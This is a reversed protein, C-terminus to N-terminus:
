GLERYLFTVAQARTVPADPSFAREGTGNTIGKSVAWTVASVYYADAAVDDFSGGSVAPSGAARWQFTVAQARTVPAGPSFTTDTTGVTIGKSVAWLVADYYYDGASVDTFPNEGTAKPAGWARWLFTVMQARTVTVNPSFTSEGTGNTIGNEVAWLVADYYYDGAYIDAFPNTSLAETFVASVEVNSAPMTFTYQTASIKTLAVARGGANTVSLRGLEYGTDPTVTVTVTAGAAARTTSVRVTGHAVSPVTVSYTAEAGGINGTDDGTPNKSWLATFTTDATIQVTDGAKHTVAGDNWGRFTYGDRSLAAPLEYAGSASDSKVVKGRDVFTVVYSGAAAVATVDASITGQNQLRANVLYIVNNDKGDTVNNLLEISSTSDVSVSGNKKIEVPHKYSEGDTSWQSTKPLDAGCGEVTIESHNVLSIERATVGLLGTGSVSVASNDVTLSDCSLGHSACGTIQIKSNNSLKWSGGNSFNGGIDAATITSNNLEFVGPSEAGHSDDSSITANSLNKLELEVNNMTLSAGHYVDIGYTATADEAKQIVLKIDSLTLSAPHYVTFCKGSAPVSASIVLTDESVGASQISVDGKIWYSSDLAADKLLYVSGGGEKVAELAAALTGAAATGSNPIYIAEDDSSYEVCQFTSLHSTTWTLTGNELSAEMLEHEGEDVCFVLVGAKGQTLTYPVSVTVTGNGDGGAPLLNTSGAKVTVKYASGDKELLIVVDNAAESVADLAGADLTVSGVDTELTLSVANKLSAATSQPVTLVASTTSSDTTTLDVTLAGGDNGTENGTGSGDPKTIETSAGTYVGELTASVSNGVTVAGTVAMGGEPKVEVIWKGDVEKATYGTALYNTPNASFTGGSISLSAPSTIMFTGTYDGGKLEVGGKYEPYTGTDIEARVVQKAGSFTGDLVEIFGGSSFVYIGTGESTYTGGDVVLKSGGSVSVASSAHDYYETQTVTCNRMVAQGAQSHEGLSAETVEIGGGYSSIIKVDTLTASGGLVKVNLGWPRSNKLTVGTVNLVGDKEVRFVGYLGTGNDQTTGGGAAIMEGTKGSSSDIVNLTGSVIKISRNDVNSGETVTYTHGNLDLTFEVNSGKDLLIGDKMTVDSLLKVTDGNTAASIAESLTSYSVGGVEAAPGVLYESNALQLSSGELACDHSSAGYSCYYEAYAPWYYTGDVLFTGSISKGSLACSDGCAVKTDITEAANFNVDPLSSQVFRNSVTCGTITVNAEALSAGRQINGALGGADYMAYITNGTSVCNAFAVNVGGQAGMGLFPGVKGYGYVESNTVKVGEFVTTGYTYGVVIGIVNNDPNDKCISARDFTINRITLSGAAKWIFGAGYYKGGSALHTKSDHLNSITHGQGDITISKVEVSTWEEGSLDVDQLLKVEVNAQGQMSADSAANMAAQLSVYETIEDGITVAAVNVEAAATVSLLSLLLVICLLISGLRTSAKKQM